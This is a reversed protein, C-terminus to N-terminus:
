CVPDSLKSSVAAKQDISKKVTPIKQKPDFIEDCDINESLMFNTAQSTIQDKLDEIEM